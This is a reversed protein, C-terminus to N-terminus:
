AAGPVHVQIDALLKPVLEDLEMRREVTAFQSPTTRTAVRPPTLLSCCDEDPLTSIEATGIRRAEAIIEEKDWAVLPRLLPLSTVEEVTAMNALTQSAVQGLSDGAVLGHAGVERALADATRVMLRRQAVVQLKGAGATALARQANGIPIVHLRSGGQFRDLQRVLAYAKYTSSPGTLPAGTFHVFDCRLGRRMARYAAVPSDYGGSLLVLARGSAGVPLGGQGREKHLSVFVERQDAEVTIEVEPDSLDVPWGWQEVVHSGIRAALRESNLPFTKDRRHARVAFRRPGVRDPGGFRETLAQSVTALADDVSRGTRWAPQVVSVGIVSRARDMLESMPAGSLVVVGPRQSIRVPASAGDVAHRLADRLYEEFKGRNRGKLMLEGYKLLVCPRAM